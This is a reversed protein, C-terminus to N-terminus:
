ASRDLEEPRVPDAFPLGKTYREIEDLAQDAMRHLEGGLSGAIHPTLLVNPLDYLPS